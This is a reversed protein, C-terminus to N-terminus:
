QNNYMRPHQKEGDGGGKQISEATQSRIKDFFDRVDREDLRWVRGMKAARLQGTTIYRTVTRVHLRLIKAAEQISIINM